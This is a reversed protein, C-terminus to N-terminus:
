HVYVETCMSCCLTKHCGAPFLATLVEVCGNFREDMSIISKIWNFTKTEKFVTLNWMYQHWNHNSEEPIHHRINKYIRSFMDLFHASELSGGRCQLYVYHMGRFRRYSDTHWWTVFSLIKMTEMALVDFRRSTATLKIIGKFVIWVEYRCMNIDAM